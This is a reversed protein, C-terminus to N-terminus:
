SITLAHVSSYEGLFTSADGRFCYKSSSDCVVTGGGVEGVLLLLPLGRLDGVFCVWSARAAVAAFFANSALLSAVAVAKRASSSARMVFPAIAHRASDVPPTFSTHLLLSFVVAPLAVHFHSVTLGFANAAVDAGKSDFVALMILWEVGPGTVVEVAFSVCWWWAVMSSAELTMVLV